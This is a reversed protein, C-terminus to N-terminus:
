ISYVFYFTFAVNIVHSSRYPYPKVLHKLPTKVFHKLSAFPANRFPTKVLHKLYTRVLHKLPTVYHALACITIYM